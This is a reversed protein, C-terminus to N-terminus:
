VEGENDDREVYYTNDSRRKIELGTSELFERKLTEFGTHSISLGLVGEIAKRDVAAGNKLLIYLNLLGFREKDESSLSSANLHIESVDIKVDALYFTILGEIFIPCILAKEFDNYETKRFSVYGGIRELYEVIELFLDLVQSVDVETSDPGKLLYTYPHFEGRSFISHAIELITIRISKKLM